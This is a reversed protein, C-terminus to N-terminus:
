EQTKDLGIDVTHGIELQRMFTDEAVDTDHRLFIFPVVVTAAAFTYPASTLTSQSTIAAGLADVAVPNGLRIGNILYLAKGGIVRVELQHIKGDAWTFNVANVTPAAGQDALDTITRLPNPDAKTGAFGIAAFDTYTPDTAALFGVPVAYTQVKRWGVVLQDSGSADTVELQVRMFFDSDTGVTMAYPSNTRNGGPVIELSENDVEDGSIELGKTAHPFPLITQATTQFLEYYYGMPSIACDVQGQAATPLATVGTAGPNLWPTSGSFKEFLYRSRTFNPNIEYQQTFRLPRTNRPM